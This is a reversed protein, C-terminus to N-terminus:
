MGPSAVPRAQEAAGVEVQTVLLDDRLGQALVRILIRTESASTPVETFGASRLGDMVMRVLRDWLQGLPGADPATEALRAFVEEAVVEDPAGAYLERIDAFLGRLGPTDESDLLAGLVRQRDQARLCSLGYHGVVEHLLSRRLREPTLGPIEAVLSVVRRDASIGGHIRGGGAKELEAGAPGYLSEVSDRVVFRLREAGQYEALFLEVEILVDDVSLTNTSPKAEAIRRMPRALVGHLEVDSTTGKAIAALTARAISARLPQAALWQALGSDALAASCVAASRAQEELWQRWAAPSASVPGASAIRTALTATPAGADSSNGPPVGLAQLRAPAWDGPTQEAGAYYVVEVPVNGLGLHRAVALRTNGEVILAEGTPGVGILIPEPWWGDREVRELLADFQREGPLRYLHEDNAGRVADFHDTPLALDRLWATATGGLGRAFAGRATPDDSRAAANIARQEELWRGGPNEIRLRGCPRQSGPQTSVSM